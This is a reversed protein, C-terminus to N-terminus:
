YSATRALRRIMLHIMRVQLMAESTVPRWADDESLRRYRKLWGLTREV